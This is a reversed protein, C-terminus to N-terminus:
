KEDSAIKRIEKIAEAKADEALQIMLEAQMSALLKAAKKPHHRVFQQIWSRLEVEKFEIRVLFNGSLSLNPIYARAELGSSWTIADGKRGRRWKGEDHVPWLERQHTYVM